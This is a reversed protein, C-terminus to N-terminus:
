KNRRSKRRAYLLFVKLVPQGLDNKLQDETRKATGNVVTFRGSTRKKRQFASQCVALHAAGDSSLVCMTEPTSALVRIQM